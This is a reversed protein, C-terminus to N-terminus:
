YRAPLSTTVSDFLMMTAIAVMTLAVAGQLDNEHEVLWYGGFAFTPCLMLIRCIWVRKRCRGYRAQIGWVYPESRDYVHLLSAKKRKPIMDLFDKTGDLLPNCKHRTFWSFRGRLCPELCVLTMVRLRHTVQDDKATAKPPRPRYVYERSTPMEVGALIAQSITLRVKGFQLPNVFHLYLYRRFGVKMLDWCRLQDFSFYQLLWGGRLENHRVRLQKLFKVDTALDGNGIQDVRPMDGPGVGFVVWAQEVPSPNSQSLEGGRSTVRHGAQNASIGSTSGINSGSTKGSSTAVGNPTYKMQASSSRGSSLNSM